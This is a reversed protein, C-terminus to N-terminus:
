LAFGSTMRPGPAPASTVAAPTSFSMRRRAPAHAPRHRRERRSADAGDAGPEVDEPERDGALAVRHPGLPQRLGADPDEVGPVRLQGALRLPVRAPERRARHELPGAGGERAAATDSEGYHLSQREGAALAAARGGRHRARHRHVRQQSIRQALGVEDLGAEVRLLGNGSTVGVVDGGREEAPQHQDAGGIREVHKPKRNGGIQVHHQGMRLLPHAGRVRPRNQRALHGARYRQVLGGM